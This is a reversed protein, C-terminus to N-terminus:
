FSNQCHKIEMISKTIPDSSQMETIFTVTLHVEIGLGKGSVKEWIEEMGQLGRGEPQSGIM